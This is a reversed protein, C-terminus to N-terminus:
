SSERRESMTDAGRNETLAAVFSGLPSTQCRDGTSISGVSSPSPMRSCIVLIPCVLFLGRDDETTPVKRARRRWWSSASSTGIDSGCVRNGVAHASMAHLAYRRGRLDRADIRLERAMGGAARSVRGFMMSLPVRELLAACARRCRSAEGQQASSFMGPLSACLVCGLM